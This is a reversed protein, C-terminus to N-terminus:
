DVERLIFMPNALNIKLCTNPERKLLQVIEKETMLDTNLVLHDCKSCQFHGEGRLTLDKNEVARPCHIEKLPEGTDSYLRKNKIKFPM